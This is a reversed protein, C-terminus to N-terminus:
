KATKGLKWATMKDRVDKNINWIFTFSFFSLVAALLPFGIVMLKIGTITGAAQALGAKTLEPNYGIAAILLVTLSGTITSGIRRSLSFFGYITGENRKGTLYENYDISEAVLGWQMQVSMIVLGAAISNWVVFLLANIEAMMLCYALLGGYMAAGVLLCFRIISVLDWKKTLLPASLLIAIQLASSLGSAVSQMGVDGLVDAYMYLTAGQGLAQVATISISHLVLALFARNHAFIGWIDSLKFKSAAKEEQTQM